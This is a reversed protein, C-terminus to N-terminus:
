KETAVTIVGKEEFTLLIKTKKYKECKNLLILWFIGLVDKKIGLIPYEVFDFNCSRRSDLYDKLVDGAGYTACLVFILSKWYKQVCVIWVLPLCRDLCQLNRQNKFLSTM